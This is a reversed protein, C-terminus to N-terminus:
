YEEGSFQREKEEVAKIIKTYSVYEKVVEKGTKDIEKESLIDPLFVPSGGLDFLEREAYELAKEIDFKRQSLAYKFNYFRVPLWLTQETFHSENSKRHDNQNIAMGKCKEAVM